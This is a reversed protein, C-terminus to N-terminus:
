ATKQDKIADLVTVLGRLNGALVNVFGSVPANISGVMKALLEERGPLKALAKVQDASIVAGELVGGAFSLTEGDKDFTDVLKAAGVEDDYSVTTLISGSLLADDIELGANKLAITLLTKKAIFVDVNSEAAKQRLENADNMTFGSVTSFSAAKMEKFKNTLDAVIQEKQERTIAM